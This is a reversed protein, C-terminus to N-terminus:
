VLTPMDQTDYAHYQWLSGRNRALREHVLPVRSDCVGPRPERPLPLVDDLPQRSVEFQVDESKAKSRGCAIEGDEHYLVTYTSPHFRVNGTCRHELTVVPECPGCVEADVDRSETCVDITQASELARFGELDIPGTCGHM